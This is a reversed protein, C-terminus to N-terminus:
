KYTVTCHEILLDQVKQFLAHEKLFRAGLGEEIQKATYITSGNGQTNYYNVYYQISNQYDTDTIIINEKQAIYHFVLNQTVDTQANETTIARWDDDKELGLYSVVFEDLSNFSMGYYTTYMNKYYEYEEIYQDYYHKVETEPYTKIVAEELVKEWIQNLIEGDRVSPIVEDKIYKEFSAKIDKDTTTYKLTKTIFEETYEAPKIEDIYEIYVKFVVAKGAMDPSHYDNPFTLPIEVLKDKSTESPIIGILADEFGPIFKGSGIILLDPENKDMNSGGEFPKGNHYGTYYIAVTDGKVIARDTIKNGTSASYQERLVDIYAMVSDADGKLTKDVTATTNKYDKEDIAIYKSMNSNMYDFRGNEDFAEKPLNSKNCATLAALCVIVTLTFAIIKKFNM